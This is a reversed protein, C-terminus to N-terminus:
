RRALQSGDPLKAISGGARLDRDVTRGGQQGEALKLAGAVSCNQQGGNVLILYITTQDACNPGPEWPRVLRLLVQAPM